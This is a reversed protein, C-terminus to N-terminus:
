CLWSIRGLGALPADGDKEYEFSMNGKYNIKKLAKIVKPIDIIGRGIEVPGGEAVAKDVDKMHMDYLRDKYREIMPVPDQAIRVVHGIDICMGIRPDLDKIKAYVDAPSAYLKDGPGHNHVAVKINLSRVKENVLPLLEHNPVGVIMELGAAVAYTFATNVEAETKMYIVGAGYLDLGAARIKEAIKKIDEASSTLPMHMDKLAIATLGIQKTMKITEDINFKRFTYSAIGLKFKADKIKPNTSFSSTTTAIAAGTVSVGTLRLFESRTYKM